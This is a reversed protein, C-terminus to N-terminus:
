LNDNEVKNMESSQSPWNTCQSKLRRNVQFAERHGSFFPRGEAGGGNWNCDANWSISIQYKVSKLVTDRYAIYSCQLHQRAARRGESLAVAPAPKRQM